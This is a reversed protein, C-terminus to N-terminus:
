WSGLGGLSPGQWSKRYGKVTRPTQTRPWSTPARLWASCTHLLDLCQARWWKCTQEQYCGIDGKENGADYIYCIYSPPLKFLNVCQAHTTLWKLLTWSKTDGHVTAWLTGRDTLNGLCSFQLSNGSEEGNSRGLRPILGAEGASTPPNKVVLVVQSAGVHQWNLEIWDSLWTQNKAVGLVAARWAKRDMVLEQLKSLSLDMSNTIGDLWRMRQWGRRRGGEIKALMQTKEFSDARWMLYGLYQFKLNLSHFKLDLSCEFSIEKLTSQNSRRATWPVRLFRRWSWM